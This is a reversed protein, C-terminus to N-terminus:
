CDTPIRGGMRSLLVLRRLGRSFLSVRSARNSENKVLVRAVAKEKAGLLLVGALTSVAFTVTVGKFVVVPSGVMTGHSVVVPLEVNVGASGVVLEVVTM